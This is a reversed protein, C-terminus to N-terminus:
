KVTNIIYKRAQQGILATAFLSSFRHPHVSQRLNYQIDGVQTFLITIM